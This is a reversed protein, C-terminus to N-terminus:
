CCEWRLLWHFVCGDDPEMGSSGLRHREKISEQFETLSVEQAPGEHKVNGHYVFCHTARHHASVVHSLGGAAQWMMVMRVRLTTAGVWYYLVKAHSDLLEPTKVEGSVHGPGVSVRLSM